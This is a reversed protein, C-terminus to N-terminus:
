HELGGKSGSGVSLSINMWAGGKRDIWRMYKYKCLNYTYVYIHMHVYVRIYDYVYTLICIYLPEKQYYFPICVSGLPLVCCIARTYISM